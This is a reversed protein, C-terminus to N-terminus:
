KSLVKDVDFVQKQCKPCGNRPNLTTPMTRADCFMNRGGTFYERVYCTKCYVEENPGEMCNSNDLLHNCLACAFCHKHYWRDRSTMKEAEYVKGQCRPCGHPDGPMAPLINRPRAINAQSREAQLQAKYCSNCYADGNTGIACRMSDLKTHCVQCNFCGQHFWVKDGAVVKEAEFVVGHCRPCGIETGAARILGTDSFPLPKTGLSLWVHTITPSLRPDILGFVKALTRSLAVRAIFKM